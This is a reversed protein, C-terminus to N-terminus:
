DWNCSLGMGLGGGSNGDAKREVLVCQVADITFMRVQRDPHHQNKRGWKENVSALVIWDTDFSLLGGKGKGHSLNQAAIVSILLLFIGFILLNKM